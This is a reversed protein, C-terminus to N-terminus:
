TDCTNHWCRNLVACISEPQRWVWLEFTMITYSGNWFHFAEGGTRPPCRNFVFMQETSPIKFEMVNVDYHGCHRWLDGAERNNVWDNIWACTFFFMLSRTVPKQAPFDGPCTSGRVFLWYRPFHKWKIVDDHLRGLTLLELNYMNYWFKALICRKCWIKFVTETPSIPHRKILYSKTTM